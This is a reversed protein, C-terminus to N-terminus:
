GGFSEVSPVPGSRRRRNVERAGGSEWSEWVTYVRQQRDRRVKRDKRISNLEISGGRAAGEEIEARTLKSGRRTGSAVTSRAPLGVKKIALGTERHAALKWGKGGAWGLGSESGNFNLYFLRTQRLVCASSFFFIQLRWLWAVM